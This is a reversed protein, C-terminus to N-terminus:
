ARAKGLLKHMEGIEWGFAGSIAQLALGEKVGIGGGTWSTSAAVMFAAKREEESALTSALNAVRDERSSQFVANEAHAILDQVAETTLENDTLACMKEAIHAVETASTTGDASAILYAAEVCASFKTTRRRRPM